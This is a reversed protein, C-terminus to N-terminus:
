LRTTKAIGQRQTRTIFILVRLRISLVLFVPKLLAAMGGAVLGVGGGGYQRPHVPLAKAATLLQYALTGYYGELWETHEVAFGVSTLLHKFGFQTYRYFDYPVEHEPFFLPASLWLQAGPKLVRYIERLVDRPEPLHELVQTLLVLDYHNAPVPISALDCVYTMDGYEKDVQRFDASEYRVHAFVHRYPAHGAGADLVLANPALPAAAKSAFAHLYTRSSNPKIRAILQKNFSPM